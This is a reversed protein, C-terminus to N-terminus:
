RYFVRSQGAYDQNSDLDGLWGAATFSNMGIRWRRSARLASLDARVTSLRSAHHSLNGRRADKMLTRFADGTVHVLSRHDGGEFYVDPLKALSEDLVVDLGYAAGVPPVAGLDCDDFLDAIEKETALGLRTDMFEQLANLEIRHTSPVVVLLYGLEHHIVVSKAMCEGSIHAAHATESTTATRPHTVVDYAVGETDLFQRLRKTVTM